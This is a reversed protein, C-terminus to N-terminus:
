VTSSSRSKSRHRYLRKNIRLQLLRYCRSPIVSQIRRSRLWVRLPKSDYALDAVYARTHARQFVPKAGRIDHVGSSSIALSFPRGQLAIALHIKTKIGGRSRGLANKKGVKGVLPTRTLVSMHATLLFPKWESLLSPSGGLSAAGIVRSQGGASAVTSLRGAELDNPSTEGASWLRRRGSSRMSSPALGMGLPDERALPCSLPLKRWQADTLAQRHM